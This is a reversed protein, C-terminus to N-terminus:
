PSFPTNKASDEMKKGNTLALIKELYLDCLERAFESDGAESTVRLSARHADPAVTAWGGPHAFRVGEGLTRPLASDRCLARVVRGKDAQRCPIERTLVHTEPLEAMMAALPKEKMGGCILLLGALADEMMMRQWACAAGADPERLPSIRVAARPVGPLDFVTGRRKHCLSLVMLGTEEGSFVHGDTFVTLSEGDPSLLFGVEGAEAEARAAEATRVRRAGMRRLGEAALRRLVPLDCFVALPVTLPRADDPPLLASLYIEEAGTLRSVEGSGDFSPPMERRLVCASVASQLRPPLARGARDAFRLAQAGAYVGGELRLVRVLAQVMPWTVDGASLVRAGAAALAGAALSRLAGDPGGCIV